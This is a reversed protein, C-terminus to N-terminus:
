KNTFFRQRLGFVIRKETVNKVFHFPQHKSGMFGPGRLLIVNGPTTDLYQPNSGSRDDCLAYDAKGKLILVAILNIRSKGDKHPTIGISDKEYLQLSMENFELPTSFLTDLNYCSFKEAILAGFDDKLKFFLSEPPFQFFSSLDERVLPSEAQPRRVYSYKEAEAILALRRERPLIPISAGGRAIIKNLLEEAAFDILDLGTGFNKRSLTISPIGNEWIDPKSVSIEAFKIKPNQLIADLIKEAITEILNFSNKEIIKRAFEKIQRYDITNKLDDGSSNESHWEININLTFRQTKTKEKQTYGHTGYFVLNNLAIKNILTKQRCDPIYPIM